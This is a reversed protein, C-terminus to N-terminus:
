LAPTGPDPYFTVQTGPNITVTGSGVPVIVRKDVSPTPGVQLCVWVSDANAYADALVDAPGVGGFVAPHSGPVENPPSTTTTCATAEDDSSPVGFGGTSVSPVTPTVAFMGGYGEGTDADEVRFCVDVEDSSPSLTYLKTHVGQSTLDVVRTGDGNQCTRSAFGFTRGSPDVPPVPTFTWTEDLPVTADHGGYLVLHASAPHSAFAAHGRNTPGVVDLQEWSDGDWAWTDDRYQTGDFGGYLVIQGLNPDWAMAAARRASPSESPDTPTADDWDVGDWVWTDGADIDDITGGFLVTQGRIPDYAMAATTRPPPSHDPDQEQWSLGSWVWTDDYNVGGFGRGGFLVVEGRQADYAMTHFRRAAPSNTPTRQGWVGNALVWTEDLYLDTPNWGGFLMVGANVPSTAMRAAYRASPGSSPGASWDGGDWVWTEDRYTGTDDRGGFLVVQGAPDTAATTGYLAPPSTAPDEFSWESAVVASAPPALAVPVAVSGAVAVAALAAKWRGCRRVTPEM